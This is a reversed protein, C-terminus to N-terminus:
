PENDWSGRWQVRRAPTADTWGHKAASGRLTSWARALRARAPTPMASAALTLREYDVTVDYTRAQLRVRGNGRFVQDPEPGSGHVESLDIAGRFYDRQCMLPPGRKARPEYNSNGTLTAHTATPKVAGPSRAAARLMRTPWEVPLETGALLDRLQSTDLTFEMRCGAANACVGNAHLEHPSGTVSQLSFEVGQRDRTLTAALAGLGRNAHRLQAVDITAPPPPCCSAVAALVAAVRRLELKELNLRPHDHAARLEGAVGQVDFRTLTVGDEVRGRIEDRGSRVSFEEVGRTDFRLEASVQVHRARTKDFPEPLRSEVGALNSNLSVTWGNDTVFTVASWHRARQLSGSLTM